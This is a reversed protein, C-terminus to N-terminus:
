IQLLLCQDPKWGIRPPQFITKAGLNKSKKWSNGVFITIFVFFGTNLKRAKLSSSLKIFNLLRGQASRLCNVSPQGVTSRCNVPLQGV